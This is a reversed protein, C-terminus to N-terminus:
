KQTFRMVDIEGTATNTLRIFYFGASLSKVEVTEANAAVTQVLKGDVTLIDIVKNEFDSGVSINFTNQSNPNPYVKYGSIFGDQKVKVIKSFTYTGDFDTQKLRYYVVDTSNLVDTAKYEITNSSNGAGDVINIEHFDVGNDSKEITFFDNNLESATAWTLSVVQNELEANFYILEVPLPNGGQNLGCVLTSDDNIVVGSPNGNILSATYANYLNTYTTGGFTLEFGATTPNSVCMNMCIVTGPRGNNEEFTISEAIITGCGDITGGHNIINGAVTITGYNLLYYDLHLEDGTINIVGNAYNVLTGAGTNTGIHMKETNISGYNYAIPLSGFSGANKNDDKVKFEKVTVVGGVQILLEGGGATNKGVEFKKAPANLFGTDAVIM